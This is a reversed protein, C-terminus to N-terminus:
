FEAILLGGSFEIVQTREQLWALIEEPSTPLLFINYGNIAKYADECETWTSCLEIINLEYDEDQEELYDFLASRAERTFDGKGWLDFTQIFLHKSITQKM